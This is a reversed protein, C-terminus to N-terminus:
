QAIGKVTVFFDAEIVPAKTKDNMIKVQFKVPEETLNSKRNKPLMRLLLTDYLLGPSLFKCHFKSVEYSLNEMSGYTSVLWELLAEEVWVFYQPHHVINYSDTDTPGVIIRNEINM